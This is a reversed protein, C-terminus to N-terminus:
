NLQTTVYDGKEILGSSKDTLELVASDANIDLIRAKGLFKPNAGTRYVLMVNGKSLGDNEGVSIALLLPGGDKPKKTEMVVGEVKPPPNKAKQYEEIELPLGRSNLVDRYQQNTVLLGRNQTSLREIKTDQEFIKDELAAKAKYQLDRDELATKLKERVIKVESQRSNSDDALDTSIQLQQASKESLQKNDGTLLSVQQGLQSVRAALEKAKEQEVKLDANFKDAAAKSGQELTAYDARQKDLGAQTKQSVEKWNTQYTSVAAAFAMLCISLVLQMVVLIKGIYSM